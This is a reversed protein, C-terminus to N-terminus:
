ELNQLELKQFNVNTQVKDTTVVNAFSVRKGEGDARSSEQVMHLLDNNTNGDQGEMNTMKDTFSTLISSINYEGLGEKARLMSSIIRSWQFVIRKSIEFRQNQFSPLRINAPMVHEFNDLLQLEQLFRKSLKNHSLTVEM